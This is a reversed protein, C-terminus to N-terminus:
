VKKGQLCSSSFLTFNQVSFARELIVVDFWWSSCNDLATIFQWCLIFVHFNREEFFQTRLVGFIIDIIGKIKM